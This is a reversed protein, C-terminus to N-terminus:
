YKEVMNRPFIKTSFEKGIGTLSFGIDIRAVEEKVPVTDYDLNKYDFLLNFNTVNEILRHYDTGNNVSIEIANDASNYRLERTATVSEIKYYISLNPSTTDPTATLEAMNRLELTIRDLAMQANLAGENTNKTSLYGEIGSYLFFTTFSGIIGILVIVTILEILIFGQPQKKFAM